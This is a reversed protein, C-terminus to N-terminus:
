DVMTAVLQRLEPTPIIAPKPGNGTLAQAHFAGFRLSLKARPTGRRNSINM